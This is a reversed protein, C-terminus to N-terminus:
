NVSKGDLFQRCEDLPSGNEGIAKGRLNEDIKMSMETIDKPSMVECLVGFNEMLRRRYMKWADATSKESLRNFEAGIENLVDRATLEV